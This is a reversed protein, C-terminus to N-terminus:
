RSQVEEVVPDDQYVWHKYLLFNWSVMVAISGLRVLRYDFVLLTNFLYMTAVSFLYNWGALLAYRMVQRHPMARNAFSWYKNLTFNYGMIFVQNFIVALVPAIGFREKLIVLSAFDLAVGSMGIISYKVFQWRVSWFYRATKKIM